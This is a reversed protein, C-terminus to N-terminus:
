AWSAGLRSALAFHADVVAALRQPTLAAHDGFQPPISAQLSLRLAGPALLTEPYGLGEAMRCATQVLSRGPDQELPVHGHHMGIHSQLSEPFGWARSMSEGAECHNMGFVATETRLANEIDPIELAMLYSYDGPSTQQLGLRGIDHLLAASHLLPPNLSGVKALHEALAASAMSHKWHDSVDLSASSRLYFSMAITCVLSRTRELGLLSLAHPISAVRARFGFEVSNAMILLDAALSPDSRFASEFDERASDAETAITLLKLATRSFVPLRSLRDLTQSRRAVSDKEGLSEM